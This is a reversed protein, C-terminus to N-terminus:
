GVEPYREPRQADPIALERGDRFAQLREFFGRSQLINMAQGLSYMRGMPKKDIEVGGYNKYLLAILLNPDITFAAQLLQDTYDRVQGLVMVEEYTIYDSVILVPNRARTIFEIREGFGITPAQVENSFCIVPKGVYTQLEALEYRRREEEYRDKAQQTIQIIQLEMENKLFSKCLNWLLTKM